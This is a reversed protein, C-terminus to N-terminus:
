RKKIYLKIIFYLIIMGGLIESLYIYPEIFYQKVDEIYPIRTYVSHTVDHIFWLQKPLLTFVNSLVPLSFVNPLLILKDLLIHILSGTGLLFWSLSGKLGYWVAGFAMLLAAFTFTHAILHGSHKTLGFFIQVLPKDVLDPLISGVIVYRYDVKFKARKFVKKITVEATRVLGITIGVHGVVLVEDSKEFVFLIEEIECLCSDSYLGNM